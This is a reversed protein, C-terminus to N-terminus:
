KFRVQAVLKTEFFPEEYFNELPYIKPRVKAEKFEEKLDGGKLFYYGSMKSCPFDNQLHRTWSILKETRAVARSVIYDFTQDIDEVRTHIATVNSLGLTEAIGQVVKIKKGISDALVFKCEPFLIALPLGPIGGGTGIDLIIAGRKFSVVKAIALGHLVHREEINEADKRSIVNIKENWEALEISLQALKAAQEKTIDPFYKAILSAM